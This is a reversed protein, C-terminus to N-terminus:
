RQVGFAFVTQSRYTQGPRLITSPFRPQNPSDPFHQTELALGTRYAYARGGKGVVSGDLFNGSYFQIGPETTRVELTRGTAPDTLRAARVLGAQGNRDLVWNHDYGGGFKLQQDGAQNIRAGIATPTRFDFPTGQVPALQGTPILTSDVATFASADLQLVHDLIGRTGTAGGLNWYTHQTLNVPTAKTTTAEYDVRLEDDATLTYTVRVALTGPYGEEGDPSTYRLTVSPDAGTGPEATWLVKDFGRLGGHLHNQGNNVALTYTQGDLTFHGRAIRNGYRGVLAGFYPANRTSWGALDDFGFTVDDLRGARDPTRVATILGGYTIARVEVGHANRLTFQEVERGDPLRGYPARTLGPQAATGAAPPTSVTTTTTTTTSATAPAVRPSTACAGVLPGLAALAVTLRRAPVSM